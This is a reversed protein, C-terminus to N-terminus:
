LWELALTGWNVPLEVTQKVTQGHKCWLILPVKHPSNVMWTMICREIGGWTILFRRISGLASVMNGLRVDRTIWLRAISRMWRSRPRPTTVPSGSQCTSTATSRTVHDNRWEAPFVHRFLRRRNVLRNLNTADGSPASSLSPRTWQTLSLCIIVDHFQYTKPIVPGKHPSDVPPWHIGDCLVLLSFRQNKKHAPLLQQVLQRTARSKLCWSTLM